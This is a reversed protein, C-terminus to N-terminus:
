QLAEAISRANHRMLELYSAAPGGADSLTCVYLRIVRAGTDQAIREALAPAIASGTFLARINQRRLTDQLRAMDRASPQAVTGFGPFLSAEQTWGYRACWYGHSRHDAVIRRRDAPVRALEKRTWDDLEALQKRYIEARERFLAAHSPDLRSLEKEIVFTWNRVNDPDLWVHPDCEGHDHDHGAAEKMSLHPLTASLDVHNTCGSAKLLASWPAEFGAGTLFWVEAPAMRQVDAPRPQFAHTDTNRPLLSVVDVEPGGIASVVDASISFTAAARVTAAAPLASLTVAGGLIWGVWRWM